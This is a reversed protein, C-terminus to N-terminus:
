AAIGGYGAAKAEAAASLRRGREDLSSRLAEFRIRLPSEDIMAVLYVSTEFVPIGWVASAPLIGIGLPEQLISCPEGKSERGNACRNQNPGRFISNQLLSEPFFMERSYLTVWKNNIMAAIYTTERTRYFSAWSRAIASCEDINSMM